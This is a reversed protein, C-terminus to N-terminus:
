KRIMPVFRVPIIKNEKLGDKTKIYKYLFQMETVKGIPAVLIGEEKLQNVLEMPLTEPSATLLIKDYPAKAKYGQYGDGCIVEINTYQLSKLTNQARKCLEEIIEITYVEKALKGLIAAQYGSGTGIELVKDKPNIELLETMLAVIYPQSITQQFGIPLPTDEYAYSKLHEPVFKHRPIEKMIDLIKKNEIGYEKLKDIMKQKKYNWNDGLLSSFFLIFLVIFKM